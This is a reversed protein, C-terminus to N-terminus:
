SPLATTGKALPPLWTETAAAAALTLPTPPTMCAAAAAAANAGPAGTATTSRLLPAVMTWCACTAAAALASFPLPPLVAETAPLVLLLPTAVMHWHMKTSSGKGECDTHRYSADFSFNSYSFRRALSPKIADSELIIADTLIHM